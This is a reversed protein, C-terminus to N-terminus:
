RRVGDKDIWGELAGESFGDKDICGELMGESVGEIEAAGDVLGDEKGERRGELMHPGKPTEVPFFVNPDPPKVTSPVVRVYADTGALTSPWSGRPHVM